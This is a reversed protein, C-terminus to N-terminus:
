PAHAWWQRTPTSRLIGPLPRSSVLSPHLLSVCPHCVPPVCPLLQRTGPLRACHRCSECLKLVRGLVPEPLRYRLTLTRGQSPSEGGAGRDVPLPACARSVPRWRRALRRAVKDGVMMRGTPMDTLSILLEFAFLVPPIPESGHSHSRPAWIRGVM